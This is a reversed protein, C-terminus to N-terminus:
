APTGIALWNVTVNTPGAGGTVRRVYIDVVTTTAIEPMAFTGSNADPFAQVCAIILPPTAYPRPFTVRGVGEAAGTTGSAAVVLTGVQLGELMDHVQTGWASAIPEGSAPRTATGSNLHRASLVPGSQRSPANVIRARDLEAGAQQNCSLHELRLNAADDSGGHARATVHGLSATESPDIPDGCRGCGRGDRAELYARMRRRAGDSRRLDSSM